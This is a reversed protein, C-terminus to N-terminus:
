HPRGSCSSGGCDSSHGGLQHGRQELSETFAAEAHRPSAHKWRDPGGVDEQDTGDLTRSDRDPVDDQERASPTENGMAHDLRARAGADQDRPAIRIRVV